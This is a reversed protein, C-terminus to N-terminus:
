KSATLENTVEKIEEFCRENLNNEVLKRLNILFTYINDYEKKSKNKLRAYGIYSIDNKLEKKILNNQSIFKGNKPLIFINFIKKNDLNLKNLPNDIYQAYTIQKHISSIDPLKDQRKDKTYGYMYYKSDIIYIAKDDIHITDPRMQSSPFKEGDLIWEGQPNYYGSDVNGFKEDVLREFVYNFDEAVLSFENSNLKNIDLSQLMDIMNKLLSIKHDNFTQLLEKRLIQIWQLKIENKISRNSVKKLPIGYIFGFINIATQVCFDHINTIQNEVDYKIQKTILEKYVLNENELFIKNNKITKKWNIKGNGNVKYRIESDRYNGNEIYDRIIWLYAEIPFKSNEQNYNEIERKQRYRSLLRLLNLVAKRYEEDLIDVSLDEKKDDYYAVPFTFFIKGDKIELGVKESKHEYPFKLNIIKNNM